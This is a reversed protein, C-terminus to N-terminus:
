KWQINNKIVRVPVGGVLSNPPVDSNGLSNADIVVGDGVLIGKLITVNMGIWVKNGISIPVTMPQKSGVIEHNDSDRISVNESIAVNEGIEIMSFYSLKLNHNIFSSGLKLHANKNIYIKQVQIYEVNKLFKM